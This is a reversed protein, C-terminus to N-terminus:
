PVAIAKIMRWIGLLRRSRNRSLCSVFHRLVLVILARMSFRLYRRWSVRATESAM